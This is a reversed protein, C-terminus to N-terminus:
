WTFRYGVGRVTQLHRPQKPDEEVKARLRSIHIDIARDFAEVAGAEDLLDLLQDRTFARGPSATMTELLKYETPTLPVERGELRLARTDPDLGNEPREEPPVRRLVAEVRALLELPNFPKPLYDDAGLRLGQIRDMDDGRATLMIIPTVVGRAKLETCVAFGDMEPLMVDLLILDPREELRLFGASPRDAWLLEYGQRGVFDTLLQALDRDDDILLLKRTM